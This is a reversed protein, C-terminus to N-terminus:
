DATRVCRAAAQETMKLSPSIGFNTELTFAFGTTGFSPAPTSSWYAPVAAGGFGAGIVPATEATEDVITALEKISPLRWDDKEAHSLSECYHLAEQWTRPTAELMTAQWVLETLSDEVVDTRATLTGSLPDGAVCRALGRSTDVDVNWTGENDNVVFFAGPTTGTTSSTWYKGTNEALIAAPMAHGAGWGEDLISIYELRSPLRWDTRGGLELAECYAAAEGPSKDKREPALQWTLGTVSDKLTTVTSTYTPVNIRYSGDQGFFPDDDQPCVTFKTPTACSATLSDPWPGGSSIVLDPPEPPTTGSDGGVAMEAGAGGESSAASGGEGQEAGAAGSGDSGGKGGSPEGADGNSSGSSGINKGATGSGSEGADGAGDAGPRKPDDSCASAGGISATLLLALSRAIRRRM